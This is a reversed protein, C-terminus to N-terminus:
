ATAALPATTSAATRSLSRGGMEEEVLYYALARFMQSQGWRHMPVNDWSFHLKRSRFSGDKKVWETLVRRVVRHLLEECQPFRDRLLMCLNICEACDYLERKYVVMRPARAFPKPMGEEDLLNAFYYNVGRELAAALGPHDSLREIKALSKMVFCTHFHDVFDRVGDAAYSWSGDESQNELVFNLNREGIEWYPPHDFVQAASALLFARYAAANIVGGRDEKNATYSCQSGLESTRVDRIDHCAHRVISALVERWEERRDHQWVQLFAEYCYPTTTILPTDRPIMGGRWVWDFPYGWCYEKFGPCRSRQLARLFQVARELHGAQGTAEFLSTFGMAYHADAIPFRIRRHFLRRGAPLIAEFFIMPAVAITGLKGHRYYLSKARGGIPGAFFSQHDWSSEGYRKLWQAFNYLVIRVAEALEGHAVSTGSTEPLVLLAKTQEPTSGSGFYRALYNDRAECLYRRLLTRARVPLPDEAPVTSKLPYYRLHIKLKGGPRLQLSFAIHNDRVIWSLPKSDATLSRIVSPDSELRTVDFRIEDESPNDLILETGYMTVEIVGASSHRQRCSQRLADGLSRWHLDVPLANIQDVLSAVRACNDDCEDHHIVISVPKGLLLDFALNEIGDVLSRRTFLACESYRMLAVDWVESVTVPTSAKPQSAVESSAAAFFDTQKLAAMAAESFVGHPFVMVRDHHIGTEREHLEMLLLARHSKEFLLERGSGTFEASTHNCGHVSLSFRDPNDIFLAVTERASRRWNWPIFAITTAFNHLRMLDLLEGYNVFGHRPKLLPDDIVLCANASPAHWGLDGFAWKMYLVVPLTSLAHERIDFVGNAPEGDLNILDETATVFLPIDRYSTEAFVVGIDTSVIPRLSEGPSAGPKLVRVTKGKDILSFRLGALIGSLRHDRAVEVGSSKGKAERELGLKDIGNTSSSGYIFASHIQRHFFDEIDSEGQMRGVLEAIGDPRAFLKIPAQEGGLFHGLLDTATATKWPIGFFNM